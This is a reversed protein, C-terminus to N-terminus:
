AGAEMPAAGATLVLKLRPADQKWGADGDGQLYGREVYERGFVGWTVPQRVTEGAPIEWSLDVVSPVGPQLIVGLTQDDARRMLKAKRQGTKGDPLWVVDQELRAAAAFGSETLNRARLRLVLFRRGRADPQRYGPETTTVWAQLPTIAYAGTQVQAGAGVQPYNGGARGDASRFGGLAAVVIVALALLLLLARVPRHDLLAKLQEQDSPRTSMDSM